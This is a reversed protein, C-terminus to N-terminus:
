LLLRTSFTAVEGWMDEEADRTLTFLETGLFQTKFQLSLLSLRSFGMELEADLGLSLTLGSIWTMLMLCLLLLSFSFPLGPLEEEREKVEM